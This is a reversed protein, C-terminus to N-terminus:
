VGFLWTTFDGLWEFLNFIKYLFYVCALGILSLLFLQINTMSLGFVSEKKDEVSQQRVYHIERIVERPEENHIRKPEVVDESRRRRVKKKIRRRKRPSNGEM